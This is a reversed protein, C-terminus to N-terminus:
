CAGPLTCPLLYMGGVCMQDPFHQDSTGPNAFSCDLQFTQNDEVVIKQTDFIAPAPEAWEQTEYLTQGTEKVSMRFATGGKHMHSSAAAIRYKGGTPEEYTVDISGQAPVTLGYQEVPLITRFQLKAIVQAGRDLDLTACADIANQTPNIFHADFVLQAGAPVHLGVQVPSSPFDYRQGSSEYSVGALMQFGGNTQADMLEAESCPAVGDPATPTGHSLLLAHHASVGLTGVFGSVDIAEPTTWRLCMTAEEGPAVSKGVALHLTDGEFTAECAAPAGGAGGAGGGGGAGAGGGGSSSTSAASSSTTSGSTTESSSGCGFLIPVALL